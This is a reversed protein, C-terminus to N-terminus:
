FLTADAGADVHLQVGTLFKAQSSCRFAVVRGFDAPYGV